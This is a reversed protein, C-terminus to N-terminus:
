KPGAGSRNNITAFGTLQDSPQSRASAGAVTNATAPAITLHHDHRILRNFVDPLLRKNGGCRDVLIRTREALMQEWERPERLQRSSHSLPSSSHPEQFPQTSLLSNRLYFTLSDNISM